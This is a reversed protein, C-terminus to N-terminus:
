PSSSFTSNSPGLRKPFGTFFKRPTEFVKKLKKKVQLANFLVNEEKLNVGNLVL